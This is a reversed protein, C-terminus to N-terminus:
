LAASHRGFAFMGTTTALWPKQFRMPPRGSKTPLMRWTFPWAKVTIPILGSPNLPILANMAGSM